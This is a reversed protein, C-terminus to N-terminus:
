IKRLVLEQIGIATGPTRVLRLDSWDQSNGLRADDLRFTATHAAGDGHVTVPATRWFPDGWTDYEVWWSGAGRDEYTVRLEVGYPGAVAVDDGPPVM